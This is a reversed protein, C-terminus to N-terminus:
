ADGAASLAFIASASRRIIKESADVNPVLRRRILHSAQNSALTLAFTKRDLARHLELYYQVAGHIDSDGDLAIAVEKTEAVRPAGTRRWEEYLDYHSFRLCVILAAITPFYHRSAGLAANCAYLRMFAQAQDRLPLKYATAIVEFARASEVEAIKRLAEDSPISDFAQRYAQQWRDDAFSTGELVGYSRRLLQNFGLSDPEPLYLELDFFRRLYREGDVSEGYVSRVAEHLNRGDIAIVFMVGKIEFFHKVRELLRIAYDPRCRDLEDIIIVLKQSGVDRGKPLRLLANRCKRLLQLFEEQSDRKEHNAARMAEGLEGAGPILPAGPVGALQLTAGALRTLPTIVKAASEFLQSGLGVSEVSETRELRSELASILSFIPDEYYDHKWADIRVVPITPGRRELEKGLRDLFVSKGTGWEGKLAVVFPQTIGDILDSVLKGFAQRGLIDDSWPDDDPIQPYEIKRTM